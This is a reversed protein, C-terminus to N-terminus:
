YKYLRNKCFRNLIHYSKNDYKVSLFSANRTEKPDPDKGVTLIVLLLLYKLNSIIKM